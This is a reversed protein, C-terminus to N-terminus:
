DAGPVDLGPNSATRISDLRRNCADRWPDGEPSLVYFRESSVADFVREAIHVPEIGQATQTRIAEEVLDRERHSAGDRKLHEPRHRQSDGIRTAILEPCLVSVAVPEPRSDLELFLGESLSLVAHKSMTYPACLPASTVAAMSATNVIHCDEGQAAQQLLLPVFTRVGHIVGWVNVGFVWEYDSLPAEWSLGGAFVGANNCVLHVAGFRDLTREALREVADSQSVDTVVALAEAGTKEIRRSVEGIGVADVDALVVKMGLAAARECLAAGIGSAAGTVVAVRGAFDRM